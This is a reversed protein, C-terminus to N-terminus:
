VNDKNVSCNCGKKELVGRLIERKGPPGPLKEITFGSAKLARKVTGKTSYTTIVGERKMASAMKGFIEETWMEPQTGPSFADFFVVDFTNDPLRIEQLSMSYKQLTFYGSIDTKENGCQHMKYFVQKDMNLLPPYNLRVAVELSVPYLEVSQYEILINKTEAWRYALSANLGTGFGVEFIHVATQSDKFLDLGARIFVHESEQIAGHVSHYSEGTKDDFLTHSGDGTM